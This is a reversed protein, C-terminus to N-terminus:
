SKNHKSYKAIILSLAKWIPLSRGTRIRYEQQVKQIIILSESPLDITTRIRRKSGEPVIEDKTKASFDIGLNKGKPPQFLVLKGEKVPEGLGSNIARKM